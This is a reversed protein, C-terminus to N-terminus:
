LPLRADIFDAMKSAIFPDVNALVVVYGSGPYIRLDGNM